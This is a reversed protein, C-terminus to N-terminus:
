GIRECSRSHAKLAYGSKFEKREHLIEPHAAYFAGWQDLELNSHRMLVFVDFLSSGCGLSRGTAVAISGIVAGVYYSAGIAATVKLRELGNTAKIVELMSASRGLERIAELILGVNAIASTYTDFLTSPVPLGLAQMNENFYTKFDRTGYCLSM